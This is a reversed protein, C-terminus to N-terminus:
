HWWPQIPSDLASRSSRQPLIAPGRDRTGVGHAVFADGGAPYLQASEAVSGDGCANGGAHRERCQARGRSSAIGMREEIEGLLVLGM